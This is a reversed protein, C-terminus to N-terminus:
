RGRQNKLTRRRGRRGAKLRGDAGIPPLGQNDKLVDRKGVVLRAGRDNLVHVQGNAPPVDDRQQAGVTRPLRRQDLM